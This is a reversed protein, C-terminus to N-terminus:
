GVPEAQEVLPRTHLAPAPPLGTVDLIEQEDLTEKSLLAAVLADLQQRHEKLLRLADQHCEGIIRLVESDIIRAVVEAAPESM